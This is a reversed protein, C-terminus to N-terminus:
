SGDRRFFRLLQWGKLLFRSFFPCILLKHLLLGLFIILFYLFRVEGWRILYLSSALFVILFFLFLLDLGFAFDKKIKRLQSYIHYVFGLTVGTGLLWTTIQLQTLISLM